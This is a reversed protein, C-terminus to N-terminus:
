DRLPPAASTGRPPADGRTAGGASSMPLRFLTADDHARLTLVLSPTRGGSPRRRAPRSAPAPGAISSRSRCCRPRPRSAGWRTSTPACGRARRRRRAPSRSRRRSSTSPERARSCRGYCVEQGSAPARTSAMGMASMAISDRASGPSRSACRPTAPRWRIPSTRRSRRACGSSSSGSSAAISSTASWGPAGVCSTADSTTRTGRPTRAAPGTSACSIGGTPPAGQTTFTWGDIQRAWREATERHRAEREPDGMAGAIEAAHVLAACVFALTSPSVGPSRRGDISRPGPPRLRGPFRRRPARSGLVCRGRRAAGRCRSLLPRDAARGSRAGPRALVARRRVLHEPLHARRRSM